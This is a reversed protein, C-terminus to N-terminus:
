RRRKVLKLTAISLAGILSAYALFVMVDIANFWMITCHRFFFMHMLMITCVWLLTISVSSLLIVGM